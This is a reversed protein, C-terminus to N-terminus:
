RHEGPNGTRIGRFSGAAINVEVEGYGADDHQDAAHGQPRDPRARRRGGSGCALARGDGVDWSAATGWFGADVLLVLVM